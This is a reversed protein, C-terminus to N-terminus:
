LEEKLLGIVPDDTTKGADIQLDDEDRGFTELFLDGSNIGSLRHLTLSCRSNEAAPYHRKVLEGWPSDMGDLSKQVQGDVPTGGSLVKNVLAILEGAEQQFSSMNDVFRDNERGGPLTLTLLPSPTLKKDAEYRDLLLEVADQNASIFVGGAPSTEGLAYLRSWAKLRLRQQSDTQGSSGTIARTLSFPQEKEERLEELLGQELATIQDLNNQLEQQQQDFFEGLKLVLRAQWLILERQEDQRHIGSQRLLSGIITTKSETKRSGLGALSLHGLQGAYDDPRTQLDQVLHLFRDRDNGLPAPVAFEVLRRKIMERCMPSLHENDPEDNEVARLHVVPAFVQVLPFLIEARPMTDPFLFVTNINTNM